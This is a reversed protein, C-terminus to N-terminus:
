PMKKERELNHIEPIFKLWVQEKLDRRCALCIDPFDISGCTGVEEVM